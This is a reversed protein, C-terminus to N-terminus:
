ADLVEGTIGVELPDNGIWCVLGGLELDLWLLFDLTDNEASTLDVSGQNLVALGVVEGVSGNGTNLLEVGEWPSLQLLVEVRVGIGLRDNPCLFLRKICTGPTERLWANLGQEVLGLVVVPLVNEVSASVWTGTNGGTELATM